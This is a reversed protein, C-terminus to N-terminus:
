GGLTPGTTTTRRRAGPVDDDDDREGDARHHEDHDLHAPPRRRRPPRRPDVHHLHDADAHHPPAPPPQRSEGALDRHGSRRLDGVAAQGLDARHGHHAAAGPRLRDRRGGAITQWSYGGAVSAGPPSRGTPTAAAHTAQLRETAPADAAASVGTRETEAAGTADTRAATSTMEVTEADGAVRRCRSGWWRPRRRRRTWRRVVGLRREAGTGGLRRLLSSSEPARVVVQKVAEHGARDVAGRFGDGHHGGGLRHGRRRDDGQGRLDVRHRRRDGCRRYLGPDPSVLVERWPHRTAWSLTSPAPSSSAPGRISSGTTASVPSPAPLVPSWGSPRTGPHWPATSRPRAGPTPTTSRSRPRGSWTGAGGHGAGARGDRGARDGGSGCWIRCRRSCRM